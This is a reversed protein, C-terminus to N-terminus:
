MAIRLLRNQEKKSLCAFVLSAALTVISRKGEQFLAIPSFRLADICWRLAHRGEAQSLCRRALYRCQYAKATRAYMEVFEPSDLALKDIFSLWTAFQAEVDASLGSNNLRYFTLPEDILSFGTATFLSIRTWCDIDESQSLSEDFYQWYSTKCGFKNTGKFAIQELVNKRIVPASGNGVPNRCFVDHASYNRKIQPSQVRKLPEGSENVFMSASFTVGDNPQSELCEIHKQLKERHWFDDSDLFAIYQGRAERIGTNRAGALGRNLQKLIRIRTDKAARDRILDISNDPSEDDVILLEFNSYSQELVSEVAQEIYAEVNYVPMVVSIKPTLIKSYNPMIKPAKEYTKRTSAELTATSSEAVSPTFSTRWVFFLYLPNTLLHVALITLAVFILGIQAAIAVAIIFLISFILQWALDSKIRGTALMLASASESLARPIASLCLIALLPVAHNWHDGFVIPVYIFALSAQALLLPVVVLGIQKLNKSFRARLQELNSSVECLNPYLASNVANILTLSFGLGANRAFYYIGLAEVGLIRGILMNDLNLRASKLVEISLYYRGFKLVERWMDFKTISGNPSWPHAYRYGLVWIPSTLFKPLVIAWAGFGLLALLATLVNDVAVQGGDIMAMSKLRQQRQVLAAQVMAFPMLLYTLALVQLMPVLEPTDYWDALPYALLVQTIFMVFCFIINLRYATNCVKQLHEEECQVIKAVIGNRSFVRILENATLVLAAVGFVIPELVQALIVATLLRTLRVFVESIGLWGLNRLFQNETNLWVSQLKGLM